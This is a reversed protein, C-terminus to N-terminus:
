RTPKPPTDNRQNPNHEDDSSDIDSHLEHDTVPTTSGSELRSIPLNDADSQTHLRSDRPSTPTSLEPPNSASVMGASARIAKQTSSTADHNNHQIIDEVKHDIVSGSAKLLDFLTPNNGMAALDIPRQGQNNTVNVLSALKERNEEPLTALFSQFAELAPEYSHYLDPLSPKATLRMRPLKNLLDARQSADMGASRCLIVLTQPFQNVSVMAHLLNSDASYPLSFRGYLIDTADYPASNPNKDNQSAILTDILQNLADRNLAYSIGTTDVKHARVDIDFFRTPDIDYTM